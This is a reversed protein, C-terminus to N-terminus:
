RSPYVTVGRPPKRMVNILGLPVHLTLVLAQDGERDGSVRREYELGFLTYGLVAEISTGHVTDIPFVGFQAWAGVETSAAEVEIGLSSSDLVGYQAAIGAMLFAPESYRMVGARIRAFGWRNPDGHGSWLKLGGSVTLDFTTGSRSVFGEVLVQKVPAPAPTPTVAPETPATPAPSDSPAPTASVPVPPPDTDAAAVTTAIVLTLATLATRNM